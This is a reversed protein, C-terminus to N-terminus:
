TREWPEGPTIQFLQWVHIEELTPIREASARYTLWGDRPVLFRPLLGPRGDKTTSGVPVVLQRSFAAPGTRLALIWGFRAADVAFLDINWGGWRLYKTRPGWIARGMASVRPEVTGAERLVGLRHDLLDLQGYPNDFPDLLPEVTPVCVLELDGVTLARRRVSGAIEIRDYTGALMAIFSAAVAEADALDHRTDTASV